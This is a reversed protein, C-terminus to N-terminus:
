ELPANLWLMVTYQILHSNYTHRINNGSLCKMKTVGLVWFDVRKWDNEKSKTCNTM